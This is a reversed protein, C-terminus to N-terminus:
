PPRLPLVLSAPFPWRCLGIRFSGTVDRMWGIWAPGAFGGLIGMMTVVAIGVAASKGKLFSGPIACIIGQIAYLGTNAVALAAVLWWSSKTIGQM